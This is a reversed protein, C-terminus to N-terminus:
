HREYPNEREPCGALDSVTPAAQLVPIESATPRVFDGTILLIRGNSTHIALGDNGWRVIKTPEEFAGFCFPGIVISALPTLTELNFSSVVFYPAGFPQQAHDAFFAANLEPAPTMAGSTEFQNDPADTAAPFLGVPAGTAPDVITGDDGYVLGTAASYHIQQEFDWFVGRYAQDLTAGNSDVDVRYFDFGTNSNNAVYLVTDTAGWQISDFGNAGVTQARAVAGDFIVVGGGQPPDRSFNGRSVAITEPSGPAAAIDYAYYPGDFSEAGLPLNIDASLSPLTFRQVSASGNIGAYLFSGDSALALADPNSGAFASLKVMGTELDVASITNPHQAAGGPVSLYLLQTEADWVIDNALQSLTRISYGVSFLLPQSAGEGPSRNSISVIGTGIASVSAAPVEATLESTSVFTTPLAVDNWKVVSLTSFGSGNITLMFGGSGVAASDPTMSQAILPEYKSLLIGATKSEKGKSGPNKVVVILEGTRQIDSSPIQVTLKTSRLVRAPLVDESYQGNIFRDSRAIVTAGPLFNSGTITLEFSPSGAPVSRPSLGGITPTPTPAPAAAPNSSEEGGGCGTLIAAIFACLM